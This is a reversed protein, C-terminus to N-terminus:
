GARTGLARERMSVDESLRQRPELDVTAHRVDGLVPLRQDRFATLTDFGRFGSSIPLRRLTKSRLSPPATTASPETRRRTL